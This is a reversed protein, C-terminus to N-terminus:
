RIEYPPHVLVPRQFPDYGRKTWYPNYSWIKNLIADPDLRGDAIKAKVYDRARSDKEREAWEPNLLPMIQRIAFEFNLGSTYVNADYFVRPADDLWSVPFFVTGQDGIHRWMAVPGDIDLANFGAREGGRGIVLMNLGSRFETHYGRDKYGSILNELSPLMNEIFGDLDGHERLFRGELVDATFGGWIYTKASCAASVEYIDRLMSLYGRNSDSIIIM